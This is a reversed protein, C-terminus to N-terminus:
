GRQEADSSWLITGVSRTEASGKANINSPAKAIVFIACQTAAAAANQVSLIIESFTNM